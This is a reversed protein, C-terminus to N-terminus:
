LQAVVEDTRHSTSFMDAVSAALLTVIEDLESWTAVFPPALVLADGREGDASTTSPYVLLGRATAARTLGNAIAAERPFPAKTSRDRVFEIGAFLGMGRIDGVYPHDGLTTQLQQLLYAGKTRSADVLGEDQIIQLVANAVACGPVSHSFTGGHPFGYPHVTQYVEDSCCVVGMPWYGSCVGKASVLIDPSLGWHDAAFWAGTRGFGTMVEDLILLVGHRRCVDAVAPWYDDPPIAVALTAGVIPEAIFAAVRDPGVALITDELLRAHSVGCAQPHTPVQCRYENVAPV